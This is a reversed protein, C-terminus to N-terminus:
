PQAGPRLCYLTTPRGGDSSTSELLWGHELLIDLGAEVTERDALGGWGSRYVKRATFQPELAGSKVKALVAKAAKVAPRIGSAYARGAHAQFYDALTLAQAISKLDVPGTKGAALHLTLALAPVHKRFKSLASEMLAGGSAGRLRSELEGRWEVFLARAEPSLRLFPLGNGDLQSHEGGVQITDLQQIREFAAKSNKKATNDPWRDVDRWQGPDDPWAIVFRELLGDSGNRHADRILRSM